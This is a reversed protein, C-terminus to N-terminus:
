SITEWVIIGTAQSDTGQTDPINGDCISDILSQCMKLWIGNPTTMTQIEELSVHGYTINVKGPSTGTAGNTASVKWLLNHQLNYTWWDMFNHYGAGGSLHTSYPIFRGAVLRTSSTSGGDGSSTTTTIKGTVEANTCVYNSITEAYRSFISSDTINLSFITSLANYLGEASMSM